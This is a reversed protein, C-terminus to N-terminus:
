NHRVRRSVDRMRIRALEAKLRAVEYRREREIAHVCQRLLLNRRKEVALQEAQSPEHMQARGSAEPLSVGTEIM